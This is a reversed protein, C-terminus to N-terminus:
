DPYGVMVDMRSLDTLAEKKTAPSMWTSHTIRNAMAKKLHGVMDQMAAKSAPPFYKDVYARGVLEGLSVDVLSVGRKWRPRLDTVGTITKTFTFRSDVFPKALYPSAESITRFTEWTKWTALPTDAYVAAIAQIASKEAVLLHGTSTVGAASFFAEWPFGPAYTKLEDFTM